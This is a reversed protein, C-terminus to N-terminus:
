FLQRILFIYLYGIKTQQNIINQKLLNLNFPFLIFFNVEDRLEAFVIIFPSKELITKFIKM